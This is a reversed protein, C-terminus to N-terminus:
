SPPIQSLASVIAQWILLPINKDQYGDAYGSVSDTEVLFDCYFVKNRSCRLHDDIVNTSRILQPNWHHRTQAISQKINFCNFCTYIKKSVRTYNMIASWYMKISNKTFVTPKREAPWLNYAATLSILLKFTYMCIFIGCFYM